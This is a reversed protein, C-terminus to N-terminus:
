YWRYLQNNMDRLEELVNKGILYAMTPAQNNGSVIYQELRDRTVSYDGFKELMIIWQVYQDDTFRIFYASTLLAYINKAEYTKMM